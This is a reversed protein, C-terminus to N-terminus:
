AGPDLCPNYYGFALSPFRKRLLALWALIGLPEEEPAHGIGSLYWEPDINLNRLQILDAGSEGLFACLAELEQPEDTFGPLVFYNLSVFGGAAKFGAAARRVDPLEYGRPRYYRRYYLPRCSNLSVRISDLGADRLRTLPEGLSANTNLNLTGRATARRVRRASQELLRWQMLPEGECGQGFSAVARPARELHPVAVGCVEEVTPVFDIREQTACVGSREQLSICGLCRANCTPSTPLPAEWRGLFLNRAAPCGYELSCRGLHQLLRNGPERALRQRTRRAVEDPDFREFDQRPDPDVRLGAAVFGEADWGAATYAFLPLPPAEGARVYAASALQTYAPALFAAVASVPGGDRPDRDLVQFSGSRPNYGVPLREPLLFLESGSPLGLWEGDPLRRWRGAAAGIAELEPCDLIRGGADAYLLRPGAPLGGTDPRGRPESQPRSM